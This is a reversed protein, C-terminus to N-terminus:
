EAQAAAENKNGGGNNNGGKLKGLLKELKVYSDETGSNFCEAVANDLNTMTENSKKIKELQNKSYSPQAIAVGDAGFTGAIDPQIKKHEAQLRNANALAEVILNARREIEKNAYHNVVTNRISETAGSVTSKICENLAGVNM